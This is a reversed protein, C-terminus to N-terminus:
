QYQHTERLSEESFLSEKISELTSVNENLFSRWTQLVKGEPDILVATVGGELDPDHGLMRLSGIAMHPTMMNIPALNVETLQNYFAFNTPIFLPLIGQATSKDSMNQLGKVVADNLLTEDNCYILLLKSSKAMIEPAIGPVEAPATYRVFMNATYAIFNPLEKDRDGSLIEDALAVINTQAVPVRHIGDRGYDLLATENDELRILIGPFGTDISGESNWTVRFPWYESREFIKESLSSAQIALPLLLLSLIKHM